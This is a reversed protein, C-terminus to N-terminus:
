FIRLLTVVVRAVCRSYEIRPISNFQWGNTGQMGDSPIEYPRSFPRLQEYEKPRPNTYGTKKRKVLDPKEINFERFLEGAM